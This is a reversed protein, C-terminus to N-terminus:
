PGVARVRGTFAEVQWSRAQGDRSRWTLTGGTAVGEASYGLPRETELTDGAPWDPVRRALGAGDVLIARGERAAELPLRALASQLARVQARERAAELARVGAPGVIGAMLALLALVVLLELLTFGGASDHPPQCCGSTRQM